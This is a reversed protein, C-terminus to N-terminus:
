FEYLDDDDIQHQKSSAIHYNAIKAKLDLDECLDTPLLPDGTVPCVSGFRALWKEISAREFCLGSPSRMPERMIHLNIKCLFEKPVDQTEKSASESSSAVKELYDGFTTFAVGIKEEEVALDLGEDPSLLSTFIGIMYTLSKNERSVPLWDGQMFLISQLMRLEASTHSSLARVFALKLRSGFHEQEFSDINVLFFLFMAMTRPHSRCFDIAAFMMLAINEECYNIRQMQFTLLALLKFTHELGNELLPDDVFCKSEASCIAPAISVCNEVYPLLMKTVLATSVLVHQKFHTSGSTSYLYLNKFMKVISFVSQHHSAPLFGDGSNFIRMFAHSADDLVSGAPGSGTLMTVLKSIRDSFSLEEELYTETESFGRLIRFLGLLDGRGNSKVKILNGAIELALPINRDVMELWCDTRFRYHNLRIFLLLLLEHHRKRGHGKAYSSLMHDFSSGIKDLERLIRKRNFKIKSFETLATLALLKTKGAVDDSSLTEVIDKVVKENFADEPDKQAQSCIEDLAPRGLIM